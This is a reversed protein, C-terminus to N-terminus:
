AAIDRDTKDNSLSATTPIDTGTAGVRAELERVRRELSEIDDDASEATEHLSTQVGNHLSAAVKERLPRGKAELSDFFGPANETIYGGVRGAIEGVTAALGFAMNLTKDGLEVVTPTDGAKRRKESGQGSM